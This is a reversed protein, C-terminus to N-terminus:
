TNAALAAGCLLVWATSATPLEKLVGVAPGVTSANTVGGTNMGYVTKNILAYTVGAECVLLVEHGYSYRVRKIADGVVEEEAIGLFYGAAGLDAVLIANSSSDACILAGKYVTVGNAVVASSVKYGALNRSQVKISATLAAM